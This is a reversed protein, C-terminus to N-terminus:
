PRAAAAAFLGTPDYAARIQLLRETSTGFVKAPDAQEAVDAFNLYVRGNTFGAEDTLEDLFHSTFVYRDGAPFRPDPSLEATRQAALREPPWASPDGGLEGRTATVCIVRAGADRALAYLGGCLYAEDDPHAWVGLITGLSAVDDPARVVAAGPSLRTTM